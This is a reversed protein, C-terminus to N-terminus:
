DACLFREVIRHTRFGRNLVRLSTRRWTRPPVNDTKRNSHDLVDRKSFIMSLTAAPKALETIKAPM